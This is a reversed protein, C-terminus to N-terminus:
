QLISLDDEDCDKYIDMVQKIEASAENKESLAIPM